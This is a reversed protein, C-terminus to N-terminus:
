KSGKKGEKRSLCKKHIAIIHQVQEDTLRRSFEIKEKLSKKRMDHLACNTPNPEYPCDILLGVIYVRTDPLDM